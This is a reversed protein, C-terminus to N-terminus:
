FRKMFNGSPCPQGMGLNEFFENEKFGKGFEKKWLAGL